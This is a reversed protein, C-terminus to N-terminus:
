SEAFGGHFGDECNREQASDCDRYSHGWMFYILMERRRSFLPSFCFLFNLDLM